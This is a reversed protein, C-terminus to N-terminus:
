KSTSCSHCSGGAFTKKGQPKVGTQSADLIEPLIESSPNPLFNKHHLPNFFEQNIAEHLEKRLHEMLVGERAPDALPIEGLIANKATVMTKFM